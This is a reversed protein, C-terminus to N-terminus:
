KNQKELAKLMDAPSLATGVSRLRIGVLGRAITLNVLFLLAGVLSGVSVGTVGEWAAGTPGSLVIYGAWAAGALLAVRLLVRGKTLRM